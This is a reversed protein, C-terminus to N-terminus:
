FLQIFAPRAKIADDTSPIIVSEEMCCGSVDGSKKNFEEVWKQNAEDPRINLCGTLSKDSVGPANMLDYSIFASNLSTAYLSVANRKINVLLASISLLLFLLIFSSGKM